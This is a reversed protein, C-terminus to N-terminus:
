LEEGGGTRNKRWLMVPCRFATGSSVVGSVPCRRAIPAPPDEPLRGGALDALALALVRVGDAVDGPAAYEDPTHSVGARCRVFIMGARTYPAMVLSDHYARSVVDPPPPLGADAAGRRAADV